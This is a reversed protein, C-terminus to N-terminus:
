RATSEDWPEEIPDRIADMEKEIAAADPDQNALKCARALNQERRKLSQELVGALYRSRERPPVQRIFKRALSDPISFTMKRAAM